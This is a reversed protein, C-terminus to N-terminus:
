RKEDNTQPPKAIPPQTKSAISESPSPTVDSKTPTGLSGKPNWTAVICQGPLLAVPIEWEDGWVTPEPLFNGTTGTSVQIELLDKPYRIRVTSKVVTTATFLPIISSIPRYELAELVTKFRSGPPMLVSKQFLKTGDAQVLKSNDPPFEDFGGSGSEPRVSVRTILAEHSALKTPAPDLAGILTYYESSSGCNQVIGQIRSSIKLLEPFKDITTIEYEIEWDPRIFIIKFYNLLSERIPEPLHQGILKPSAARVVEQIFKTKLGEDIIIGILGAIIAADGIKDGLEFLKQFIVRVLPHQTPDCQPQILVVQEFLLRICILALGVWIARYALAKDAGRKRSSSAPSAHDTGSGVPVVEAPPVSGQDKGSKGTNTAM